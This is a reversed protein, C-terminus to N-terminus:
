NGDIVPLHRQGPFVVDGIAQHCLVLPPCRLTILVIWMAPQQFAASQRVALLQAVVVLMAPHLPDRQVFLRQQREVVVVGPALLLPPLAVPQDVAVLVITQPTHHLM